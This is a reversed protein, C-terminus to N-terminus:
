VEGFGITMEAMCWECFVRPFQSKGRPDKHLRVCRPCDDKAAEQLQRATQYLVPVTAETEAQEEKDTTSM